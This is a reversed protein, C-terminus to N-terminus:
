VRKVCHLTTELNLCRLRCLFLNVTSHCITELLNQLSLSWSSKELTRKGINQSSSSSSNNKDHVILNHVSNFPHLDLNSQLKKLKTNHEEKLLHYSSTSIYLSFIISYLTYFRM